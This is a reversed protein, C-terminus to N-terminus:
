DSVNVFTGNTLETLETPSAYVLYQTIGFQNFDPYEDKDTVMFFNGNELYNYPILPWAPIMRLGDLIDVGNIALSFAMIATGFSLPTNNCSRIDIDFNNNNLQISLSQNPIAQLPIVIM